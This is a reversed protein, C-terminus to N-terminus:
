RKIIYAGPVKSRVDDLMEEIEHRDKTSGYTYWYSDNQKFAKVSTLGNFRPDNEGLLQDSQFLLITFNMNEPAAAQTQQTQVRNSSLAVPNASATATNKRSTNVKVSQRAPASTRGTQPTQATVATRQPATQATAASRSPISIVTRGKSDKKNSSNSALTKSQQKAKPAKEKKEKKKNKKNKKGKSSDNDKAAPKVEDQKEEVRALYSTESRLQIDEKEFNANDSIRKSNESRRRRPTTGRRKEQVPAQTVQRAPTDTSALVLATGEPVSTEALGSEQVSEFNEESLNGSAKGSKATKSRSTNAKKATSQRAAGQSPKQAATSAGPKVQPDTEGIYQEIAKMLATALKEQGEESGIFEASEPNCIFDLEVLVAPMSTAWLVWFGAQKVGRDGRGATKVLQSQAEHAFKLSNALNKKQAMEFVIYSEDNSPDFKYSKGGDAELKMVSNEKKAVELNKNDKDLGLAYVSAGKVTKRNPNSADVSNTHISVFLDGRNRNAINAREQLSIFNDDSRTMVVKVDKMKKRLQAALKKAVGLNVDKERVGNDIAGHDKGGHGADIVM